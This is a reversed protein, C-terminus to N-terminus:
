AEAHASKRRGRGSPQVDPALLSASAEPPEFTVNCDEGIMHALYGSQQRDPHCAVRFRVVVIGGQTPEITFDDATADPFVLDSLGGLGQHITVRAGVIELTWHLPKAIQPYRLDPADHTADALNGAPGELKYYFSSRLTSSFMPLLDAAEGRVEFAISAAPQPKEGHLERRPTYSALRAKQETLEFKPPM